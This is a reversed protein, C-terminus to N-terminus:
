DSSEQENSEGIKFLHVFANFMDEDTFFMYGNDLEIWGCPDHNLDPEIRRIASNLLISEKTKFNEVPDTAYIKVRFEVEKKHEKFCIVFVTAEVPETVERGYARKARKTKVPIPFAVLEGSESWKAIKHLANPLAGFEFEAAGMYDFRCIDALVDMAEDSLGGNKMGGGFSFPNVLHALKNGNKSYPRKLRQILRSHNMDRFDM